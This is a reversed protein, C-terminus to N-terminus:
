RSNPMDAYVLTAEMEVIPETMSASTVKTIFRADGPTVPRVNLRISVEAGPALSAIPEFVLTHGEQRYRVPGLANKFEMKDPLQCTLRIANETKSGTNTLKIEYAMSSGVEVPDETDSVDLVLSSLGEVVTMMDTEVRVGRTAQAMAHHKQDGIATAVVDVKVERSQGPAVEGVYWTVTRSSPDHRGGDSASLYKLGAPLTDTVSVNTAPADGPNTLKLTYTAKRDLYRLGPGIIALDLRPMVVHVTATHQIKMGGEAEAHGECRQEGGGRTGCIIQVNRSEGPSLNGVEFDVRRGRSHELGEGLLAFFRVMEMPGDGTNSVTFTFTATEGVMVRDTASSRLVLRPDRVLVKAMSTGTFTVWAQPVFDGRTEAQLRMHITKEQNPMLVGLEWAFVNGESLGRPESSVVMMGTPIRVRLM